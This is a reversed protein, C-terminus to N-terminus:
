AAEPGPASRPEEEMRDLAADLSSKRSCVTDGMKFSPLDGTECRHRAQRVTLGLYEAIAPAGYLLDKTRPEM